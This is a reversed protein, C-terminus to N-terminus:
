RELISRAEEKYDEEKRGKSYDLLVISGVNTHFIRENLADPIGKMVFDNRTVQEKPDAPTWIFRLLEGRLIVRFPGSLSDTEGKYLMYIGDRRPVRKEAMGKDYISSTLNKLILQAEEIYDEHTKNVAFEVLVLTDNLIKFVRPDNEEITAIVFKPNWPSAEKPNIPSSVLKLLKGTFFAKFPGSTEKSSNSYRMYIENKSIFREDKM